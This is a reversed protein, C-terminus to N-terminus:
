RLGALFAETEKSNEHMETVFGACGAQMSELAASDDMINRADAKFKEFDGAAFRGLGFRQFIGDPNVDLSLLAVRGLGAQIFSNPWGEWESTNVFVRAADYHRQIEHYPVKEIFRLNPLIAARKAVTKWLSADERPCIMEFSSSPMAEVLDLFLHPRKVPQCRSVWLFDVFKQGENKFARPLILNRYMGCSWGRKAFLTRQHETMAYRRDCRAVGWEFLAGRLLNERRFDGTLESDLGCIFGVRFGLVPRMAVVIATWATWGLIFVWDPREECIVSFVRPISALMAAPNGSHFQGGTRMKVGDLLSGDQQGTDGGVIVVDLGRAALERALLAVQLEAGGSVRSTNRELVLHAYSSLFLIKMRASHASKTGNGVVTFKECADTSISENKL